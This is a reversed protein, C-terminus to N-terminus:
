RGEKGEGPDEDDDVDDVCVRGIVVRKREQDGADDIEEIHLVPERIPDDSCSLPDYEHWVELDGHEAKLEQLEEILQSIRVPYRKWRAVANQNDSM